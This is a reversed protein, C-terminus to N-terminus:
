RLRYVRLRERYVGDFPWVKRYPYWWPAGPDVVESLEYGLGELGNWLRHDFGTEREIMELRKPRVPLDAMWLYMQSPVYMVEPLDKPTRMMEGISRHDVRYGLTELRSKGAITPWLGFIGITTAKDLHGVAHREIMADDNYRVDIWASNAFLLNSGVLVGLCISAGRRWNRLLVDVGMTVVLMGGMAVPLGFYDASYGVPILGLGVLGVLPLMLM